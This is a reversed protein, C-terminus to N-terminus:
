DASLKVDFGEVKELQPMRGHRTIVERYVSGVESIFRAISFRAIADPRAESGLRYRLDADSLLALLGAALERQDCAKVLWGNQGHRIIEPIGDVAAALVATGSLMAEVITLGFPERRSNVVLLDFARMLAPVDERPGLLLIQDPVKSASAARVLSAAYEADRNFIPEGVILLVAEPIERVVETFAEIMELQGKRPTLQGVTGVVLQSEKIGLARRLEQRNELNPQFREADVANHITTVAVPRPFWRLLAGRFRDSVARSVAIIRNRRSALAFLRIVTSLPHRPLLDHAHWVIPIGLGVTAASMVLGARISNAHILDPVERVVAARAMRIVRAFSAFYRILLDPRWTFRAALPDMGTTKIRLDNIMRILQGDAPCLVVCDVSRDLGALTMLLVREAGSVHGTHNYFLIKM